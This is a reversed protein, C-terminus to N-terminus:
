PALFGFFKLAFYMLGSLIGIISIVLALPLCNDLEQGPIKVNMGMTTSIYDGIGILASFTMLIKFYTDVKQNDRNTEQDVLAEFQKKTVTLLVKSDNIM